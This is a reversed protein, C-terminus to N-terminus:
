CSCWKHSSLGFAKDGGRQRVHAFTESKVGHHRDQGKEKHRFEADVPFAGSFNIREEICRDINQGHHSTQDGVASAVVFAGDGGTDQDHGQSVDNQGDWGDARFGNDDAGQHDDCETVSQELAVQLCEDALEVVVLFVSFQAVGTELDEVHEDVDAAHEGRHCGHSYAVPPQACLAEGVVGVQGGQAVLEVVSRHGGFHYFSTKGFQGGLYAEVTSRGVHGGKGLVVEFCEVGSEVICEAHGDEGHEDGQHDEYGVAVVQGVRSGFGYRLLAFRGFGFDLLRGLLDFLTKVGQKGYEGDHNEEPEREVLVSQGQCEECLVVGPQGEESEGNRGFQELRHVGEAHDEEGRDDDPYEAYQAFFVAFRGRGLLDGDTHADGSQGVHDHGETRDAKRGEGFYLCLSTEGRGFAYRGPQQQDGVEDQRYGFQEDRRQTKREDRFYRRGFELTQHLAEPQSSGGHAICQEEESRDEVRM